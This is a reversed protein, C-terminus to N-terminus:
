AIKEGRKARQKAINAAYLRFADAQKRPRGDKQKGFMTMAMKQDDKSLKMTSGNGNSSESAGRGGSSVGSFKAKISPSPAPRRVQSALGFRRRADEAIEDFLAESDQEGAARRTQLLGLAYQGAQQHGLVDGYRNMLTARQALMMVQQPTLQQQGGGAYLQIKRKEIDRARQIYQTEREPTLTGNDREARFATHIDEWERNIREEEAQQSNQEQSPQRQQQLAQLMGTAHAHETRLREVERRNAEEAERTEKFRQARRQARPSRPQTPEDGEPGEDEEGGEDDEESSLDVEVAGDDPDQESVTAGNGEIKKKAAM